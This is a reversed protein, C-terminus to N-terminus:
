FHFRMTQRFLGTKKRALIRSYEELELFRKLVAIWSGWRTKSPIILLKPAVKSDQQIKRLQIKAEASHNLKSIFNSVKKM